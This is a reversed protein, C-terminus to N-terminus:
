PTSVCAHADEVHQVAYLYARSWTRFRAQDYTGGHWCSSIWEGDRKFVTPRNLLEFALRWDRHKRRKNKM